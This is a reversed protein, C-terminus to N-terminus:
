LIREKFFECGLASPPATMVPGLVCLSIVRKPPFFFVWFGMDLARPAPHAVGTAVSIFAPGHSSCPLALCSLQPLLLLVCFSGHSLARSMALAAAASCHSRLNAVFSHGVFIGSFCAPAM